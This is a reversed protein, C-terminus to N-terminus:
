ESFFNTVDPTENRIADINAKATDLDENYWKSRYEAKSMVNLNVDQRDSLKQTEKDEIISDDFKIEINVNDWANPSFNYEGDGYTNCIYILAKVADILVEQLVIEHKKLTRFMESNESIVQTATTIGSGDFRYHNEGFGCKASLLNLGNNIGIFFDNTRLTPNYFKLPEKNDNEGNGYVYFATDRNDFVKHEGGNDYKTLQVDVFIRPKGLNMEECFGDYALDVGELVSRANAFVSIGLPSNIDINNVINPQLIQFWKINSGTYFTIDKDVDGFHTVIDEGNKECILTRIVYNDEEIYHIQIVASNTNENAFACETIEGDEITLPYIKERNVFQIKPKKDDTISEVFAGTGLAFTKEVGANGKSWFKLDTFLRNITEQNEDGEIAIDTKENLLLNAWDECVKKPMNLTKRKCSVWQEGNYIKYNHFSGVDGKYWQKWLDVFGDEEFAIVKKGAVKEIIGKINM